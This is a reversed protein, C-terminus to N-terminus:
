KDVILYVAPVNNRYSAPIRSAEDAIQKKYKSSPRFYEDQPWVNNQMVFIQTEM